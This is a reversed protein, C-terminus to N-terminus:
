YGFIEKHLSTISKHEKTTIGDKIAILKFTDSNIYITYGLSIINDKKSLINV